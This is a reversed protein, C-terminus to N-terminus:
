KEDDGNIYVADGIAVQGAVRIGMQIGMVPREGTVMTRMKILTKYPEREPNRTAKEPHILTFTCRFHIVDDPIQLFNLTEESFQKLRVEYLTKCFPFYDHRWRSDM